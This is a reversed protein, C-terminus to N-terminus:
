LDLKTFIKAGKLKDILEPILPLPYKNLITQENLRRYDQCPRLKGDKKDVFFFPAAWPSTSPRIYGKALNESIFTRLAEKQHNDLSYAKGAYPKADPKLDIAHDWPHTKPFRRSSPEDFVKAFSQYEKPVLDLKDRKPADMALKTAITMKFVQLGESIWEQNDIQEEEAFDLQTTFTDIGQIQLIPNSFCTTPCRSLTIHNTQWNVDPNHLRLWDTGLILNDQGLNTLYFTITELHHGEKGSISLLVQCTETIDGLNNKTGDINIVLIPRALPTIRFGKAKAFENDILVGTAGSDVLARAKATIGKQQILVNICISPPGNYKNTFLICKSNSDSDITRTLTSPDM